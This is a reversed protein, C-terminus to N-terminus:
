EWELVAELLLLFLALQGADQFLETLFMGLWSGQLPANVQQDLSDTKETNMFRWSPITNHYNSSETQLM